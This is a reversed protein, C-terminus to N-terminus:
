GGKGMRRVRRAHALAEAAEFEPTGRTLCHEYYRLLLDKDDETADDRATLRAFIEDRQDDTMKAYNLETIQETEHGMNHPWARREI